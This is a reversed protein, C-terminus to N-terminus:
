YGQDTLLPRYRIHRRKEGQEGWYYNLYPLNNMTPLCLIFLVDCLPLSPSSVCDCSVCHLPSADPGGFLLHVMDGISAAKPPLQARASRRCGLTFAAMLVRTGKQVTERAVPSCHGWGTFRRGYLSVPDPSASCLGPFYSTASLGRSSGRPFSVLHGPSLWLSLLM